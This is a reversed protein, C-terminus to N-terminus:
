SFGKVIPKPVCRCNILEGPWIHRRVKPDPDYWGEAIKYKKRDNALHTPRPERGAHSHLWLAEEIGIATHRARTMAATAMGNQTRAILVARRQTIDYRRRLDKTLQELDRGATVSRMVLGEVETHYQEPISRILSVNQAVTADLVDRMERTVTFKVSIGADRLIKRLATESRLEAARAFWAALKPAAEDIRRQWRKGLKRLERELEKAASADQAMAPPKARYQAAIWHEYSAAMEDLLAVIRRRYAAAIGANARVPRLTRENKRKM